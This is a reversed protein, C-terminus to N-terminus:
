EESGTSDSEANQAAQTAMSRAVSAQRSQRSLPRWHVGTGGRPETERSKAESSVSEAALFSLNKSRESPGEEVRLGPVPVVPVWLPSVQHRSIVEVGDDIVVAGGPTGAGKRFTEEGKKKRGPFQVMTAVFMLVLPILAWLLVTKPPFAVLSVAVICALATWGYMILVVGRHSHGILLLRDHLHTRDATVPSKGHLMRAVPTVILDGLPILLVALPLMLPIWATLATQERILLPNVQGTVIIAASGLVLGLVMAGSDGMFISAPHYNYWLFGICVGALIITVVAASAAYSSAGTLRTLLYSYAFFSLSGIAIVGAALGDLGDVFNVANMIAVLILTSVLISLRSSGITVGFLPLSILQVGGFAMGGAVLFQGALKALWDLEWVDDIAGLLCIALAGLLVAWLANSAQYVPKLFPISNGLMLAVVLGGTLALGGLRPIPVAHVDRERLPTIVNLGLAIRRVIPTLVLTVALAVFLLLLYVKM